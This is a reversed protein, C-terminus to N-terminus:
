EERWDPFCHVRVVPFYVKLGGGVEGVEVVVYFVGGLLLKVEGNGKLTFVYKPGLYLLEDLLYTRGTERPCEKREESYHWSSSCFRCFRYFSVLLYYM